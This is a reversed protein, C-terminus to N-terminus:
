RKTSKTQLKNVYEDFSDIRNEWLTRYQDIWVFAPVLQKAQIRYYRERGQQEVTIVGCESLVRLHKSVAPRSVDFHDALDKVTLEQRSLLDIIDRRVPDAIAQFIDRRM